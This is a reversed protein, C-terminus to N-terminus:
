LLSICYAILFVSLGLCEFSEPDSRGQLEVMKWIGHINARYVVTERQSVGNLGVGHHGILCLKEYFWM